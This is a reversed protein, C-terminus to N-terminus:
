KNPIRQTVLREGDQTLNVLFEAPDVHRPVVGNPGAVDDPYRVKVDLSIPKDPNEKLARDIELEIHRISNGDALTRGGWGRNLDRVMRVLNLEERAGGHGRSLLHGADNGSTGKIVAGQATGSRKADRAELGDVHMHTTHGHENTRFYAYDDVKYTTNPLPQRMDISMFERGGVSKRVPEVFEIKGADDTYFVGRGRVEYRTNPKLEIDPNAGFPERAKPMLKNGNADETDVDVREAVHYDGSPRGRMGTGGPGTDGAYDTPHRNPVIEGTNPSPSGSGSGTGNRPPSWGADSGDADRYMTRFDTPEPRTWGTPPGGAPALERGLQPMGNRVNDIANNVTGTVAERSRSIADTARYTNDRISTLADMTHRDFTAGMTSKIARSAAALDGIKNAVGPAHMTAARMAAKMAGRAAASSGGSAVAAIVDPALGGATQYPSTDWNDWGIVSKGVNLLREGSEKTGQPDNILSGVLLPVSSFKAADKTLQWLGSWAAAAEGDESLGTLDWVFGATSTVMGWAGKGVMYGQTLLSNGQWGEPHGWPTDGSQAMQDYGDKTLGYVTKDDVSAQGAAEWTPGGYIASIANACNRQAEDLDAQLQSCRGSLDEEDRLQQLDDWGSKDKVWEWPNSNSSNTEAKDKHFKNIDSVLTNRQNQLEDCRDAYTTLAKGAALADDWLDKAKTQPTNMAQLVLHQEPAHYPAALGQWTSHITGALTNIASGAETLDIVANRIPQGPDITPLKSVDLTM